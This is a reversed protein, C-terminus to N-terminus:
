YRIFQAECTPEIQYEGDDGSAMTIIYTGAATYNGTKLNFQWYGEDTFVFQNGDSGQGASLADDTVDIPAGGTGSDYLVQIVPPSILTSTTVPVGYDDLLQAKHPLARNKGRVTVPGGDMPSEFGVCSFVPSTGPILAWDPFSDVASNNTLRILEGTGDASMVYFEPNGDRDSVFLLQLGDPSYIPYQDQAPNTTLRVPDGSGDANRVYIERNGDRWSQFVVKGGDPSFRPNTDGGPSYTLRMPTGTGDANMLWIEEDGSRRSHFALTTGDPSVAQSHNDARDFTLRTEGTGDANIVMIEAGGFRYSHFYIKEGDPSWEPQENTGAGSTLPVVNAGDIDM